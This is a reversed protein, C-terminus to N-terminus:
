PKTEKTEPEGDWWCNCHTGDERKPCPSEDEGSYGCSCCVGSSVQKAQCEYPQRVGPAPFTKSCTAMRCTAYGTVVNADAASGCDPCKALLVRLRRVEIVLAPVSEAMRDLSAFPDNAGSIWEIARHEVENLSEENLTEVSVKMVRLREATSKTSAEAAAARMQEAEVTGCGALKAPGGCEPCRLPGVAPVEADLIARFRMAYSRVAFDGYREMEEALKRIKEIADNM